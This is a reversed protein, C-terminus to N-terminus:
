RTHAVADSMEARRVDRDQRLIVVPFIMAKESNWRWECVGLLKKPVYHPFQEWSQRQPDLLLYSVIQNYLICMAKNREIKRHLHHGNSQHVTDKYVEKLQM